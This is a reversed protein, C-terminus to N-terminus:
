GSFKAVIRVIEGSMKSTDRPGLEKSFRAFCEDFITEEVENVAKVKRQWGPFVKEKV